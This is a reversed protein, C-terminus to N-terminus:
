CAGLQVPVVSLQVVSALFGLARVVKRELEQHPTSQVVREQVQSELVRVVLYDVLEPECELVQELLLAVGPEAIAAEPPERRAVEVRARALLEGHPAVAEPVLVADELLEDRGLARLELRRVGPELVVVRPLEGAEVDRVVDAEIAM